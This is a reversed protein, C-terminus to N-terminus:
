SYRHKNRIHYDIYRQSM